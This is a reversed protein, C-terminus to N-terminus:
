GEPASYSGDPNKTLPRNSHITIQTATQEIDLILGNKYTYRIRTMKATANLIETKYDAPTTVGPTNLKLEGGKLIYVFV